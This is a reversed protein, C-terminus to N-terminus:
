DTRSRRADGRVASRGAGAAAAEVLAGTALLLDEAGDPGSWSSAPRCRGGTTPVPLALAPHGALSVAVAAANPASRRTSTSALRSAAAHTPLALLEVQEFM